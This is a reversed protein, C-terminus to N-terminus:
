TWKLLFLTQEAPDEFMIELHWLMHDTKAWILDYKGPYKKQMKDLCDSKIDQGHLLMNHYKASCEDEFARLDRQWNKDIKTM